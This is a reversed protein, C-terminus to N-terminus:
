AANVMHALIKFHRIIASRIALMRVVLIANLNYHEIHRKVSRGQEIAVNEM